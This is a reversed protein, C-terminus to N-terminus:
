KAVRSRIAEGMRIGGLIEPVVCIDAGGRQMKTVSSEDSARSIIKINSNLHKATIIGILTALDDEAAFLIARANEVGASKLIEESTFDGNVIKYGFEFLTEATEAKKDVIVVNHRRKKLEMAVNAGIDSYGCIITHNKLRKATFSNVKTIINTNSLIEVVAALAIGVAVIKVFGDIISLAILADFKGSFPPAYAQLTPMVNIGVADFLTGITYYASVYFNHSLNYVFYLTVLAVIVAIAGLAILTRSAISKREIEPVNM